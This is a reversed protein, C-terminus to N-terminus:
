ELPRGYKNKCADGKKFLLMLNLYINYFPVLNGLIYWGSRGLDHFRRVTVCFEAIAGTIWIFIIVIGIAEENTEIGFKEQFFVVTTIAGFIFLLDLFSHIFFEGRGARGSTNFIHKLM